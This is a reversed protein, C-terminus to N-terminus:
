GECLEVEEVAAELEDRGADQVWEDEADVIDYGDEVPQDIEFLRVTKGDQM